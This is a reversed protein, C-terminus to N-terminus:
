SPNPVEVLEVAASHKKLFASRWSRAKPANIGETETLRFRDEDVTTELCGTITVPADTISDRHLNTESAAATPTAAVDVATAATEAARSGVILPPPSFDTTSSGKTTALPVHNPTRTVTRAARPSAAAARRPATVQVTLGDSQVALA